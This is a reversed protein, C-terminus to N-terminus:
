FYDHNKLLIVLELIVIIIDKEKKCPVGYTLFDNKYSLPNIVMFCNMGDKNGDWNHIIGINLDNFSIVISQKSTSGMVGNCAYKFNTNFEIPTIGSLYTILDDHVPYPKGSKVLKNFFEEELMILAQKMNM